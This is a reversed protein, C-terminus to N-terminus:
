ARTGSGDKAGAGPRNFTLKMREILEHADMKFADDLNREALAASKGAKACMAEEYAQVATEREEVTSGANIAESLALGLELGGLMAMNAGAGAFPVMLHAADGVLTVGPVHTWTHGAPLQYLPRHYIAADDCHNILKQWVPGWGAYKELLVARAANPESPLTWDEAERFWAYTRFRGDGNRQVFVLAGNQFCASTGQGVLERVDAMDPRAAVEPALSIEAGNVGKYFPTAPSVLPRIRSRGGDAGVLIDCTTTTGNTFTLEHRGGDLKRASVLTHGWKVSEAPCADLLLKRLVSRDIEPKLDTVAKSSDAIVAHILSGDADYLKYSDGEARSNQDFVEQLGNDRFARQGTEWGLDLCGGLHARDDFTADREYVVAPIGRRHLTLLLVLGSPGGGIIAIEPLTPSTVTSM